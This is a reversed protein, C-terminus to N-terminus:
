ASGSGDSGGGAMTGEAAVVVVAAAVVVVAESDKESGGRAVAARELRARSRRAPSGGQHWSAVRRRKGGKCVGHWGLGQRLGRRRVQLADGVVAILQWSKM